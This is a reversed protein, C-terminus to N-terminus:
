AYSLIWSDQKDQINYFCGFIMINQWFQSLSFFSIIDDFSKQRRKIFISYLRAPRRQISLFVPSEVSWGREQHFHELFRSGKWAIATNTLKRLSSTSLPSRRTAEPVNSSPDWWQVMVFCNVRAMNNQYWIMVIVVVDVVVVTFGSPLMNAWM